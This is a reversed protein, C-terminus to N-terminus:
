SEQLNGIIYRRYRGTGKVAIQHEEVMETLLAKIRSPSMQMYQIIEASGAEDNERIYEVIKKKNM